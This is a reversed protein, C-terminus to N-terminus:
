HFGDNSKFSTTTALNTAKLDRQTPFHSFVKVSVDCLKTPQIGIQNPLNPNSSWFSEETQYPDFSDSVGQTLCQGMINIYPLAHELIKGLIHRLIIMTWTIEWINGSWKRLYWAGWSIGEPGASHATEHFAHIMSQWLHWTVIYGCYQCYMYIYIIIYTICWASCKCYSIFIFIYIYIHWM